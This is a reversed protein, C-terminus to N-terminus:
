KAFLRKPSCEVFSTRKKAIVVDLRYNQFLKDCYYVHKQLHVDNPFHERFHVKQFHYAFFYESHNCM